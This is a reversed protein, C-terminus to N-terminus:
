RPPLMPSALMNGLHRKAVRAVNTASVCKTDQFIFLHKQYFKLFMEQTLLAGLLTAVNQRPRAVDYSVNNGGCHTRM